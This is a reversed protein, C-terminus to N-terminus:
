QKFDPYCSERHYFRLRPLSRSNHCYSDQRSFSDLVMSEFLMDVSDSGSERTYIQVYCVEKATDRSDVRVFGGVWVQNSGLVQIEDTFARHFAEESDKSLTETVGSNWRLPFYESHKSSM